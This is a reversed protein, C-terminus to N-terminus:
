EPRRSNRLSVFAVAVCTLAPILLGLVYFDSQVILNFISHYIVAVSLAAFTGSFSLKKERMIFCLAYGVCLSTIGHMLGAGFGRITAYRISLDAVNRVLMCVNELTAFGIGLAISCELLLQKEPKFLLALFIIPLSKVTEEILPTLNTTFFVDSSNWSHYFIGNIEGALLCTVTGVMLYAVIARSPGKMVFLMLCLPAALCIFTILDIYEM